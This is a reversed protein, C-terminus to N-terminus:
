LPTKVNLRPIEIKPCRDMVVHLGAKQAEQCAEENVVDIQMWITKAGLKIAEQVSPLVESSRRFLELMDFPAAETLSAVVKRGHLSQGALAPNVPVVDYGHDLLFKMVGYSPRDPKVSAGVLAIRRTTELINKLEQDAEEAIM